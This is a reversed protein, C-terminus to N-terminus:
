HILRRVIRECPGFAQGTNGSTVCWSAVSFNADSDYLPNSLVISGGVDHVITLKLLEECSASRM